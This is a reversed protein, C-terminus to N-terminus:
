LRSEQHVPLTFYFESGYGNGKSKVTFKGNHVEIIRKVLALGIGNGEYSQDLRDFLGFIRDQFKPDIGIGKDAVCCTLFEEDMTATVSIEPRCGERNFKLANDILNQAVEFMQHRDAVVSPMDPQIQINANTQKIQGQILTIVEEFLKSLPINQPKGAVRGIRSLELLDNLLSGMKDAANSIQALDKDILESKGKKIDERLLGIFSKVTVLPSKLDHSVTYSYRELEENKFELENILSDRIKAEKELENKSHQLNAAMINFSKALQGIENGTNISVRRTLDGVAIQRSFHSLELLPKTIAGASYLSLLIGLILVLVLVVLFINRLQHPLAIFESYPLIALMTWERDMVPAFAVLSDIGQINVRAVGNQMKVANTLIQEYDKEEITVPQLILNKDPHSLIKGVKDLIM